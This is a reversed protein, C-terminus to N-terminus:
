PYINLDATWQGAPNHSAHDRSPFSTDARRRKGPQASLDGSELCGGGPLTNRLLARSPLVFAATMSTSVRWGVIRRSFVDIVFAVYGM